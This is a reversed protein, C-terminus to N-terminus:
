EDGGDDQEVEKAYKFFSEDDLIFLKEVQETTVPNFPHGVTKFAKRLARKEDTDNVIIQQFDPIFNGNGDKIFEAYTFKTAKVTRRM